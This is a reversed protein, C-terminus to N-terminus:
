FGVVVSAHLSEGISESNFFFFFPNKFEAEERQLAVDGTVTPGNRVNCMDALKLLSEKCVCVCM